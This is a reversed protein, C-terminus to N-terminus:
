GLGTIVLALFTSAIMFPGFPLQTKRSARGRALLAVGYGAALLFGALAGAILTGWGLWALALGLSAALKVDGPGLGSPSIILLLLCFAAFAAGGLLARGLSSWHGGAAAAALLLAATGAFAPGTLLDPLRRTAVDIYALPVTCVALWCAAALVLGPHIRAALLGLLVATSVEVSLAPPGLRARCAPCRGTPPLVPLAALATLATRRPPATAAAGRAPPVAAAVGRAPPAAVPESVGPERVGRAPSAPAPESVGPERVGRAPSAAAPESVGPECVGRGPPLPTDCAPCSRRWPQGSPVSLRVILARLVPGLALGAVAFLAILLPRL